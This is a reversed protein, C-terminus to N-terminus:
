TVDYASEGIPDHDVEYDDTQGIDLSANRLEDRYVRRGDLNQKGMTQTILDLMAQGREVFCYGFEDNELVDPMIWHAKLIQELKGKDIYQRLVPLYRSPARGGILQNTYSDIPTKNIISDFLERRIRPQAVNECWHKPFIHHIDISKTHIDAFSLPDGTRWDAAGSKIQLAYLGKYAASNRTRLSLLRGPDFNARAVSEPEAGGRVQRAVQVLDNAFQTEVASGYTEGLVGCWYWRELKEQAYAPELEVGLEAYLAALPVIQTNYPVNDKTLIFQRNLFKAAELFGEEAVDAWRKYESLELDLISARRCDIGPLLNLPRGTSEAQRRREQTALLTVAQLFQDGAIGQLVGFASHMRDRRKEWDYRLRFDGAAFTATVLEFVSLTVGGTNVKEFVTCVAEKRTDKGLNIVPVQYESFNDLVCSKFANFFEFANVHPHDDRGQWHQVYKFGWAMGDMVSETPMMHQEFELEPASLDLDVKRGFNSRLVRDEPVSFITEDRDTSEDIAKQMDIYYWLRLIKKSGPRDRTEVPFSLRLTQYLSTLRQQGDLLYQDPSDKGNGGVGEILKSVFRVDGTADLTMVAGIPFGRSISVLLDKIRGDDWVWGRQFDPLQIEGKEIDELLSNLLFANAKFTSM